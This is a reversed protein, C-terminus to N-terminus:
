EPIMPFEAATQRFFWILWSLSVGLLRCIGRLSIKELLAKRVLEKTDESIEPKTRDAVFQRGCEKCRYNQKNHDTHGNRKISESNCSPCNM